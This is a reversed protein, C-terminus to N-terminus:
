FDYEFKSVKSKLELEEKNQAEMMSKFVNVFKFDALIIDTSTIIGTLNGKEDEVPLKKIGHEIMLDAADDLTDDEKLFIVNKSMANKVFTKEVDKGEAVLRAVDRETIIGVVERKSDMVLVSGIGYKLMLKAASRISHDPHVFLVNRKMFDKVQM